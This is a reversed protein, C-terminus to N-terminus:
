HLIGVWSLQSPSYLSTLTEKNGMLNGQTPQEKISICTGISTVEKVGSEEWTRILEADRWRRPGLSLLLGV